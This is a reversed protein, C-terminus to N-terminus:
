VKGGEDVKISTQYTGRGREFVYYLENEVYELGQNVQKLYKSNMKQAPIKREDLADEVIVYKGRQFRVIAKLKLNHDHIADWADGQHNNTLLLGGVRLYRTCVRAVGGAFLSLLLDFTGDLLPLPIAYDQQIFRIYASQTYHKNHSVFQSLSRENEFFQAAAESQDVYVMHPFYLSPTIHVSCGPYMVDRCQYRDRIAKFLGAREFNLHAYHSEYLDM